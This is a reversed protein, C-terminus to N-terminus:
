LAEITGSAIDEWVPRQQLEDFKFNDQVVSQKEGDAAQM